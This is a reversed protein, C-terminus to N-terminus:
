WNIFLAIFIRVLFGIGALALAFSGIAALVSTVVAVVAVVVNETSANLVFPVLMGSALYAEISVFLSM